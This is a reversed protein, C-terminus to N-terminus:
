LKRHVQWDAAIPLSIMYINCKTFLDKIWRQITNLSAMRFPKEYTILLRYCSEDNVRHTRRKIYEKLCALTCLKDNANYARYTFTDLKNGRRSHKLVHQPSFSVGIDTIVMRSVTYNHITNVRQEGILLLVVYNRLSTKTRYNITLKYLILISLCKISM